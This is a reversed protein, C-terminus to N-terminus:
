SHSCGSSFIIIGTNEKFFMDYDLRRGTVFQLYQWDQSNRIFLVNGSLTLYGAGVNLFASGYPHKGQFNVLNRWCSKM